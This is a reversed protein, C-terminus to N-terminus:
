IKLKLTQNVNQLHKGVKINRKFAYKSVFLIYQKLKHEYKSDLEGFLCLATVANEISPFTMLKKGRWYLEFPKDLAAM